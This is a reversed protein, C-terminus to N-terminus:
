AGMVLFTRLWSNMGTLEVWEYGGGTARCLWLRDPDGAAGSGRVMCLQDRYAVEATPLSGKPPVLIYNEIPYFVM